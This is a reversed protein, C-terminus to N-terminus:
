SAAEVVNKMLSAVTCPGCGGPVPTYALVVRKSDEHMDGVVKGDVRNIGVDVVVQNAGASLYDPTLFGPRGVAVVVIDAERSFEKVHDRQSKSHCVTVSAGAQSLMMELPKGVIDSNNIILVRNGAIPVGTRDLIEVVGAPTCPLFTPRGQSLLGVNHPHFCDVDKEPPVMDYFDSNAADEVPLQIIVGDYHTDHGLISEMSYKVYDTPSLKPSEFVSEGSLNYQDWLRCEIGIQLCARVKRLIYSLSAPSHNALVVGLRPQRHMASVRRALEAQIDAAIAACDIAVGTEGKYMWKLWNTAPM